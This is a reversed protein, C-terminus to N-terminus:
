VVDACACTYHLKCVMHVGGRGEEERGGRREGGTGEGGREEGGRGEGGRGRPWRMYSRLRCGCNCPTEETDRPGEELSSLSELSTSGRLPM